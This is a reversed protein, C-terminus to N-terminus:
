AYTCCKTRGGGGGKIPHDIPSAQTPFICLKTIPREFEGNITKIVASRVLGDPATFVKEVRGLLCDSPPTNENRIVVMDGAKLNVKIKFWKTRQQLTALYEERWRRWIIQHLQQRQGWITLRNPPTAGVDEALPQPMIPKGLIFHAPTMPALDTPDDSLPWLPRSNLCGEIQVHVALQNLDDKSLIQKGISRKVHRKMSKVAAEWIGGQHPSAPTIFHWKTNYKTLFREPMEKSWHMLVRKLENDTGVFTTGNDSTLHFCRGKRMVFREYAAMFEELTLGVCVELHSARTAMCVFVAIWAKLTTEPTKGRTSPPRGPSRRIIFPGAFDVGTHSFPEAANVRVSPLNAMQQNNLPQDYRICTPCGHILSNIVQRMRTFWFTRRIHAMMLQSQGHLTVVHAERMILYSLRAKPHLIIQHKSDNSCIANM